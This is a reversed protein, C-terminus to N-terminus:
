RVGDSPPATDPSTPVPEADAAAGVGPVFGCAIGSLPQGGLSLTGIDTSTGASVLVNPRQATASSENAVPGAAVTLYEGAPVGSLAFRGTEDTRASISTNQV